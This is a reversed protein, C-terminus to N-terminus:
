KKIVLNHTYDLNGISDYEYGLTYVNTAWIDKELMLKLNKNSNSDMFKKVSSIITLKRNHKSIESILKRGKSNFGLIRIYPKTTKSIQMDKKTIGLLAYLFIRKLRTQTYRKTNIISLLETITNCQNVASKIAFELGESVDPLNAIEDISMKRLTYIITKDLESINRVIHGNELCDQLINFSTEPM